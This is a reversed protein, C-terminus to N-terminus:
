RCTSAESKMFKGIPLDSCLQYLPELSKLFLLSYVLLALNYQFDRHQLLQRHRFDLKRRVKKSGLEAKAVPSSGYAGSTM